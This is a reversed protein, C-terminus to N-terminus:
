AKGNTCNRRGRRANASRRRVSYKTLSAFPCVRRRHPEGDPLTAAHAAHRSVSQRDTESGAGGWRAFGASRTMTVERIKVAPPSRGQACATATSSPRITATPVFALSEPRTQPSIRVTSVAAPPQPGLSRSRRSGEDDLFTPGSWRMLSSGARM